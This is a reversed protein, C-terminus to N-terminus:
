GIFYSICRYHYIITYSLKLRFFQPNPFSQRSYALSIM